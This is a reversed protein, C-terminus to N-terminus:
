WPRLGAPDLDGAQIPGPDGPVRRVGLTVVSGAQVAAARVVQVRDLAVLRVQVGLQSGQGPFVDRGPVNSGVAGVAPDFPGGDFDDRDRGPSANGFAAWAMWIVRLVRGM